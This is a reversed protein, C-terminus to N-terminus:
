TRVNMVANRSGFGDDQYSDAGPDAVWAQGDLVFMYTYRGPRLTLDITWIGGNRRDMLDSGVSWKNFDGAVSVQRAQPAYFSLRVTVSGETAATPPANRGGDRLQTLLLAAVVLVLGAMATAMNWRLVRSGFLFRRIREGFSPELRPIRQMVADTFGPPAEQPGEQELLTLAARLDEYEQQLSRDSRVLRLVEEREDAPVEGDLLKRITERDIKM